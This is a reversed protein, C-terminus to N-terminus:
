GSAVRRERLSSASSAGAVVLSQMRGPLSAIEGRVAEAPLPRSMLYGQVYISPARALIDLQEIREVGEATIELGLRGCLDVITQAIALSREATDIRAILSRDLKV